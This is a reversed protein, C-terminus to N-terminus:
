MWTLWDNVEERKAMTFGPEGGRILELPSPSVGTNVDYFAHQAEEPTKGYAAQAADWIDNHHRSVDHYFKPDGEEGWGGQYLDPDHEIQQRHRRGYDAVSEGSVEGAPQTEEAGPISVMYGSSPGKGPGRRTFGGTEAIDKMVGRQWDPGFYDPEASNKIVAASYALVESVSASRRRSRRSGQRRLLAEEIAERNHPVHGHAIAIDIPDMASDIHDWSEDVWGGHAGIGASRKGRGQYNVPVYLGSKDNVFQTSGETHQPPSEDGDGYEYGALGNWIGAQAVHAQPLNFAQATQRVANAMRDYGGAWGVAKIGLDRANFPREGVVEHRYGSPQSPDEFKKKIPVMKDALDGPVDQPAGHPWLIGRPMWSDITVPNPDKPNSINGYFNRIKMAANPDNSTSLAGLINAHDSPDTQMVRHARAINQRSAPGPPNKIQSQDGNVHQLFNHADQLNGDWRRLPSLAAFVGMAHNPHHGFDKAFGHAMEHAQPYWDAAQAKMHDPLADWHTMANDTLTDQDFGYKDLSSQRPAATRRWPAAMEYQERATTIRPM